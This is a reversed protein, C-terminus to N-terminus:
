EERVDIFDGCSKRNFKTREGRRQCLGWPTRRDESPDYFICDCCRCVSEKSCGDHEVIVILRDLDYKVNVETEKISNLYSNLSDQLDQLDTGIVFKVKM